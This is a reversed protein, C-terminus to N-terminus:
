RRIFVVGHETVHTEHEQRGYDFRPATDVEIRVRSRVCHVLRVLRHNDTVERGTPPMFELLEAVGNGTMFRTVLVATDPLYLQKVVYSTDAPRVRFLGGKGSDLLAGSVSPADFRPCCFWDISGDTTVLAATQLDGILGHESIPQYDQM